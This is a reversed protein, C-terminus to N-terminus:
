VASVTATISANWNAYVGTPACPSGLGRNLRAFTHGANYNTVVYWREESNQWYLSGDFTSTGQTWICQGILDRFFPLSYTGSGVALGVWTITYTESLPPSCGVAYQCISPAYIGYLLKGTVPHALLKGVGPVSAGPPLGAPNPKAILKGDDASM